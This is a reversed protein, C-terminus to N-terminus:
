LGAGSSRQARRSQAPRSGRWVGERLNPRRASRCPVPPRPQAAEWFPSTRRRQRAGRPATSRRRSARRNRRASEGCRPSLRLWRIRWMASRASGAVTVPKRARRCRHAGPPTPQTGDAGRHQPRRSVHQARHRLLVDSPPPAHRRLPRLRRRRLHVPSARHPPRPREHGKALALWAARGCRATRAATIHLCTTHRTTEWSRRCGRRPQM